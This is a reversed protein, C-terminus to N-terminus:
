HEDHDGLRRLAALVPMMMGLTLVVAGYRAATAIMPPWGSDEVVKCMGIVAWVGLAVVMFGRSLFWGERTIKEDEDHCHHECNEDDTCQVCQGDYCWISTDQERESM